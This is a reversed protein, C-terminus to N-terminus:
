NIGPTLAAFSASKTIAGIFPNFSAMSIAINTKNIPPKKPTVVFVPANSAPIPETTSFSCPFSNINIGTNINTNEKPPVLKPIASSVM